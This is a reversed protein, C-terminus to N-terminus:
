STRKEEEEKAKALAQRRQRYIELPEKELAPLLTSVLLLLACELMGKWRRAREFNEM